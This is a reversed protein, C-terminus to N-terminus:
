GHLPRSKRTEILLDGDSRIMHHITDLIRVLSYSGDPSRLYVMILASVVPRMDDHNQLIANTVVHVTQRDTQAERDVLFAAIATRGELRRGHVEFVAKETFHDLGASARGRDIDGHYATIIELCEALTEKPALIPSYTM